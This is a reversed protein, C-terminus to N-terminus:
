NILIIAYVAYLILISFLLTAVGIISAFPAHKPLVVRAVIANIGVIFIAQLVLAYLDAVGGAVHLDRYFDLYIIVSGEGSGAFQIYSLAAAAGIFLGGLVFFGILSYHRVLSHWSIQMYFSQPRM